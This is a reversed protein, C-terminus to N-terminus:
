DGAAPAPGAMFEDLGQRAQAQVRRQLWPTWGFVAGLPGLAQRSWAYLDFWDRHDAIKGDRFEFKAEIVNHVARSSSFTYYAEWHASGEDDEAQVESHEVRLDTARGCLMRWMAGVEEGHLHTFVPDAFHADATYCAAMADGDQRAFAEYLSDILAANANADAPV